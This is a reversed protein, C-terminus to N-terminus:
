RVVLELDNDILVVRYTGWPGPSLPITVGDDVLEVIVPLGSDDSREIELSLVAGVPQLVVCAEDCRTTWGEDTVTAPVEFRVRLGTDTQATAMDPTRVLGRSTGDLLALTGDAGERIRLAGGGGPAARPAPDIRYTRTLGADNVQTVASWQRGETDEVMHMVGWPPARRPMLSGPATALPLPILAWAGESEIALAIADTANDDRMGAALRVLGHVRDAGDVSLGSALFTAGEPADPLPAMRGDAGRRLLAGEETLLTLRGNRDVVADVPAVRLADGNGDILRSRTWLGDGATLLLLDGNLLTALALGETGRGVGFVRMPADAAAIVSTVTTTRSVRNRRREVLTGAPHEGLGEDLLLLEVVEDGIALVAADRAVPSSFSLPECGLLSTQAQLGACTGAAANGQIVAHVGGEDDVVVDLAREVGLPCAALPFTHWGTVTAVPCRRAYTFAIPSGTGTDLRLEDDADFGAIVTRFFTGAPASADELVEQEIAGGRISWLALQIRSAGRWVASVPLGSTNAVDGFYFPAREGSVFALTRRAGGEGGDRYWFGELANAEVPVGGPPGGDDDGCSVCVAVTLAASFARALRSSRGPVPGLTHM